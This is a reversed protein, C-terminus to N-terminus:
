SNLKSNFKLNANHSNNSADHSQHNVREILLNGVSRQAGEKVSKHRYYEQLCLHHLVGISEPVTELIENVM